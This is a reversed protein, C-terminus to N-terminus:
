IGYYLQETLLLLERSSAFARLFVSVHYDNRQAKADERSFNNKDTRASMAPKAIDSKIESHRSKNQSM